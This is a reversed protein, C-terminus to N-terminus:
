FINSHSIRETDLLDDLYFLLRGAALNIQYDEGSDKAEELDAFALDANDIDQHNLIMFLFGRAKEWEAKAENYRYIEGEDKIKMIIESVKDIKKYAYFDAFLILVVTLAFIVIAIIVNKM